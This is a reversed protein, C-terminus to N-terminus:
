AFIRKKETGRHSGKNIEHPERGSSSNSLSVPAGMKLSIAKAGEKVLNFLKERGKAQLRFPTLTVTLCYHVGGGGGNKFGAQEM